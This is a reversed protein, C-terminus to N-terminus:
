GCQRCSSSLWTSVRAREEGLAVVVKQACRGDHHRSLLRQRAGGRAAAGAARSDDVAAGSARGRMAAAAFDLDEQTTPRANSGSFMRPSAEVVYEAANLGYIRYEGRDDTTATGSVLRRPGTAINQTRSAQVQIGSAPQGREDRITGTIVGGRALKLTIDTMRQGEALSITTGSGGPRTAGYAQFIFAAKSAQLTFRGAPVQTFAFRGTDDTIVTRGGLLAAGALAVHAGRLPKPTAEATLIVGAIM